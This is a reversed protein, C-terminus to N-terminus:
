VLTRDGFFFSSFSFRYIFINFFVLTYLCSPLSLKVIEKGRRNLSIRM